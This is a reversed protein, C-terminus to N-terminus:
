SVEPKSLQKGRWWGLVTGDAPIFPVKAMDFARAAMSLAQKASTVWLTIDHLDQAGLRKAQKQYWEKNTQNCERIKGTARQFVDYAPPHHLRHSTVNLGEIEKSVARIAELNMPPPYEHLSRKPESDNLDCGIMGSFNPSLDILIGVMSVSPIDGGSKM